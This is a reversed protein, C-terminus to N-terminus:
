TQNPQKTPSKSMGQLGLWSIQTNLGAGVDKIRFCFDIAIFIGAEFPTSDCKFALFDLEQALFVQDNRLPKNSQSFTRNRQNSFSQFDIQIVVGTDKSFDEKKICFSLSVYCSTLYTTNWFSVEDSIVTRECSTVRFLRGPFNTTTRHM